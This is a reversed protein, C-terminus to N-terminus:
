SSSKTPSVYLQMSLLAETIQAILCTERKGITTIVGCLWDKPVTETDWVKGFIPLLLSVSVKDGYKIAENSIEDYGAAKNAKLKLLGNRIENDICHFPCSVTVFKM